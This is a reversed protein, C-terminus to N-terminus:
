SNAVERYVSLTERAARDWSFRSARQLGKTAYERYIREDRLLESLREVFEDEDGNTVLIGYDGVIETVSSNNYAIVPTGCAMAEILPLGFGEYLSPFVLVSAASYIKPLDIEDVFGTFLLRANKLGLGIDRWYMEVARFYDRKGVFVLPLPDNVESVYKKYIRLLGCPNKRYDVAGTYLLYREPLDYRERVASVDQVPKYAPSIGNYIAYVKDPHIGMYRVIDNKSYRSVTIIADANRAARAQLKFLLREKRITGRRGLWRVICDHVTIVTPVRTRLPAVQMQYHFVDPKLSEALQATGLLDQVIYRYRNHDGPNKQTILNNNPIHPKDADEAINDFALFSFAVGSDQRRLAKLLDGCYRGIGRYKHGTQLPRIDYGINIM